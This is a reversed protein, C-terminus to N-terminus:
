LRAALDFLALLEEVRAPKALFHDVGLSRLRERQEPALDGSLVAVLLDAGHETARLERVADEGSMDPLGLDLIVLDPRASAVAHVGAAGDTATSMTVDPWLGVMLRILAATRPDDEICVVSLPRGPSPEAGETDVEGAGDDASPLLLRFTSGVGVTSEIEIRGRMAAALGRSLTLGIGTGEITGHEGGLRQFPMALQQLQAADLGVGTDTVDVFVMAEDLGTSVTVSGGSRNYKIANSVLNAVIQVVRQRDAIALASSCEDHLTIGAAAARRSLLDLAERAADAVELQQLDIAALGSETRSLEFIDDILRVMHSAAANMHALWERQETNLLEMDLLEGFGAIANLPTRLEHSMLSLFVTKARNANEASESALQYQLALQRSHREAEALAREALVTDHIYRASGARGVPEGNGDVILRSNVGMWTASGDEHVFRSRVAAYPRLGAPIGSEVFSARDEPHVIHVLETGVLTDPAFGLLRDVSQTIWTITGDITTEFVLDSANEAIARFRQQMVVLETVDRLGAVTGDPTGSADCVPQGRGWFWRWSGDKHRIEFLYGDAPTPDHGSYLAVRDTETRAVYDERMRDTMPSGVLEDPTWGLVREISPSVWTLRRDPGARFVLDSSNEALLRFMTESRQLADVVDYRETVDAWTLSVSDRVRVGRFDFRRVTGAIESHIAIGDLILPRGTTLCQVYRDFMGSTRQGPFQHLLQSGLLDDREINLYRIAEDNAATYVFDVVRDDGDRVAELFVHPTLEAELAARFFEISDLLDRRTDPQATM